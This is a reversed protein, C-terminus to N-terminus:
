SRKIEKLLARVPSGDGGELKLPLAILDYIGAAVHHLDVGELIFVGGRKFAHHADLSKSTLPDVSPADTGILQVGIESLSIAAKESIVPFHDYNYVEENKTTKFLIKTIGKLDMTNIVEEDIVSVTGTEVVLCEGCVADLPIEDITIGDEDYHYPADLHTGTHTSMEIKGVNVNDGKRISMSSTFKFDYDGPWVKMGEFLPRTIDIYKM